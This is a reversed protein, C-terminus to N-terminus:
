APEEQEGGQALDQALDEQVADQEQQAGQEQQMGQAEAAGSEQESGQEPAAQEQRSVRGGSGEIANVASASYADLEVSLGKVTLEGNGLLKVPREPHRILGVDHLTHATVLSGEEFRELDTLNVIQYQFGRGTFGRKPLRAILQSRGGEWGARQSFGSRSSQGKQGRGATKG